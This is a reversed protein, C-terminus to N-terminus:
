SAVLDSIPHPLPFVDSGEEEEEESDESRSLELKTRLAELQRESEQEVEKRVKWPARRTEELLSDAKGLAKAVADSMQSCLPILWHKLLGPRTRSGPQRRFHHFLRTLFDSRAIKCVESSLSTGEIKKLLNEKASFFEDGLGMRLVACSSPRGARLCLSQRHPGIPIMSFGHAREVIAAFFSIGFLLARMGSFAPM